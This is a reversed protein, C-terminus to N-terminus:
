ESICWDHSKRQPNDMEHKLLLTLVHLLFPSDIYRLVNQVNRKHIQYLRHKQIEIDYQFKAADNQKYSKRLQVENHISLM